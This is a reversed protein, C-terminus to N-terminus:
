RMVGRDKYAKLKQYRRKERKFDNVLWRILFYLIIIGAAIELLNTIIEGWPMSNVIKPDKMWSFDFIGSM